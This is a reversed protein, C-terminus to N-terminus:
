TRNPVSKQKPTDTGSGLRHAVAGKRLRDPGFAELLTTPWLGKKNELETRFRNKKARHEKKKRPAKESAESNPGPM